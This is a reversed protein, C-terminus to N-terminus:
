RARSQGRHHRGDRPDLCQGYNEPFFAITGLYISEEASRSRMEVVAEESAGIGVSAARGLFGAQELAIGCNVASPDSEGFCLVYEADPHATAWDTVKPIFEDPGTEIAITDDINADPIDITEQLGAIAGETRTVCVACGQATPAIFQIAAPDWGQEIAHQGLM